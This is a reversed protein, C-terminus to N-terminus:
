WRLTMNAYLEAKWIWANNAPHSGQRPRGARACDHDVAKVAPAGSNQGLFSGAGYVTDSSPDTDLSVRMPFALSPGCVRPSAPWACPLPLRDIMGIGSMCGGSRIGFGSAFELPGLRAGSASQGLVAPAKIALGAAWPLRRVGRGPVPKPSGGRPAAQACVLCSKLVRISSLM